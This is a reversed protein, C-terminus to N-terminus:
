ARRKWMYVVIYPQVRGTDVRGGVYVASRAMDATMHTDWDYGIGSVSHTNSNYGIYYGKNDVGNQASQHFWIKGGSDFATGSMLRMNGHGHYYYNHKDITVWGPYQKHVEDNLAAFDNSNGDMLSGGTSGVTDFTIGLFNSGDMYQDKDM